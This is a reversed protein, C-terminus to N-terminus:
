RRIFPRTRVVSGSREGGIGGATTGLKVLGARFASFLRIQRTLACESM